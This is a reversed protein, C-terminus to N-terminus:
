QLSVRGHDDLGMRYTHGVELRTGVQVDEIELDRFPCPLGSGLCGWPHQLKWGEVQIYAYHNHDYKGNRIDVWQLLAFSLLIAQEIPVEGHGDIRATDSDEPLTVEIVGEPSQWTWPNM